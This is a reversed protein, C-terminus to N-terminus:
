TDLERTLPVGKEQDHTTVQSAVPRMSHFLRQAETAAVYAGNKVTETANQLVTAAEEVKPNYRITDYIEKASEKVCKIGAAIQALYTEDPVPFLSGRVEAYFSLAKEKLDHFIPKLEANTLETFPIKNESIITIHQLDLLNKESLLVSVMVMKIKSGLTNNCQAILKKLLHAVSVSPLLILITITETSNDSFFKNSKCCIVIM